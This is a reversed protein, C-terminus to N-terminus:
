CSGTVFSPIAEAKSDFELVELVLEILTLQENTNAERDFASFPPVGVRVSLVVAECELLDVGALLPFRATGSRVRRM